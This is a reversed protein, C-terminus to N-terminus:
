IAGAAILSPVISAGRQVVLPGLYGTNSIGIDDIWFPGSSSSTNSQGFWYQTAPGVTNLSTYTHTETAAPSDTTTYLSISVVGAAPDGTVYGEVRFWQGVPVATTFPAESTFSAGYSAQITTGSILVSGCQSAGDRAQFLRFQPTAPAALYSYARFYITAQTGMSTTWEAVSTTSTAGTAVKCSQTGHAAHTSDYALTANTGIAVTDFANGSAGGSTGATLANGSTGGQFNNLLITM